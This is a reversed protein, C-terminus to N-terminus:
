NNLKFENIPTYYVKKNPISKSFSANGTNQKLHNAGAVGGGGRAKRKEDLERGDGGRLGM